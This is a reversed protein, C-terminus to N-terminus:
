GLSKKFKEFLSATKGETYNTKRYKTINQVGQNLSLVMLEDSKQLEFPNIAQEKLLYITKGELIEMLKGPFRTSAYRAPIVSIVKM